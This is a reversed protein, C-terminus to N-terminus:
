SATGTKVLIVIKKVWTFLIVLLLLKQFYQHFLSKHTHKHLLECKAYLKWKIFRSIPPHLRGSWFEVLNRLLVFMEEPSLKM